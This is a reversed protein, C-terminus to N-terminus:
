GLFVQDPPRIFFLAHFALRKKQQGGTSTYIEAARAAM